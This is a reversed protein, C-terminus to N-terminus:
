REPPLSTMGPRFFTASTEDISPTVSLSPSPRSFARLAAQHAATWIALTVAQSADSNTTHAAAAHGSPQAAPWGALSPWNV